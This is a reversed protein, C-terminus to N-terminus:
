PKYGIMHLTTAATRIDHPFEGLLCMALRFRPQLRPASPTVLSAQVLEMDPKRISSRHIM